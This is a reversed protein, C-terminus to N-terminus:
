FIWCFVIGWVLLSGGLCLLLGIGKPNRSKSKKHFRRYIGQQREIYDAIIEEAERVITKKSEM